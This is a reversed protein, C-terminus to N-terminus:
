ILALYKMTTIGIFTATLSTITGIIICEAALKENSNMVKAMVFASSPSPSVMLMLVIGLLPGRFGMIVAIFTFIFPTILTKLAVAWFLPKRNETSIDFSFLSGINILVLPTAMGKILQLSNNVFVPINFNMYNVIVGAVLGLILPNKFIEALIKDAKVTKIESGDKGQDFYTLTIVALVNYLPIVLISVLSMGLLVSQGFIGELIPYGVVVFNGRYVGQVFAGKTRNDWSSKQAILFGVVYTIMSFLFALGLFRWIESGINFDIEANSITHFLLVPLALKFVLASSKNSFTEDVIGKKKLFYGICILTIIPMLVNISLLFYEM